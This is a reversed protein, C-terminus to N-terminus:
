AAVVSEVIDAVRRAFFFHGARPELRTACDPLAAALRLAHRAPVLRDRAGHWLVIPVTVESPDFGWPRRCVELDEIMTRPAAASRARLMRLAADYALPGALPVRLGAVPLAYRLGSPVMPSAAAAAVVRGPLAWACALAFPAGASVGVVSFRDWGLSDALDQVDAAFAAVTRGPQPDSGGFGPRNVILYRLGLSAVAADLAPTRWHPSGIAGHMYLVPLGDPRGLPEYTLRRGDRLRVAAPHRSTTAV